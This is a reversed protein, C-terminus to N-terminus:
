KGLESMYDKHLLQTPTCGLHKCTNRVNEIHKMHAILEHDIGKKIVKALKGHKYVVLADNFSDYGIANKGRGILTLFGSYKKVEGDNLSAILDNKGYNSKIEDYKLTKFLFRGTVVALFLFKIRNYFSILQHRM